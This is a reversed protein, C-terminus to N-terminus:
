KGTYIHGPHRRHFSHKETGLKEVAGKGIPYTIRMPNAIDYPARTSSLLTEGGERRKWFVVLKTVVLLINLLANAKLPSMDPHNESDLAPDILDM